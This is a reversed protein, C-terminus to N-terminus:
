MCMHDIIEICAGDVCETDDPPDCWGCCRYDGEGSCGSPCEYDDGGCDMPCESTILQICEDTELNFRYKTEAWGCGEHYWCGCVQIAVCDDDSQCGDICHLCKGSWCGGEVEPFYGPPCDPPISDCSVPLIREPCSEPTVSDELIDWADWDDWDDWWDWGDDWSDDLPDEGPDELLDNAPDELLDDAPDPAPDTTGPDEAAPDSPADPDTGPDPAADADPDGATDGAADSDGAIDPTADEGADGATNTDGCGPAVLAAAAFFLLLFRTM